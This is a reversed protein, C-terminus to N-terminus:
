SVARTVGAAVALLGLVGLLRRWPNVGRLLEDISWWALAALGIGTIWPRAASDEDVFWRAVVTALFVGLAVNPFQAITIRGTERSRFCWDVFGDSARASSGPAGPSAAV